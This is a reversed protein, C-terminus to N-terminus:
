LYNEIVKIKNELCTIFGSILIQEDVEPITVKLQQLKKFYMYTRSGGQKQIIAYKKFESGSNLKIRLFKDDMDKTTTFVPYLTSVIGNDVIDNINFRFILDDSMHRYTFYGFPVVGYHGDNIVAREQPYLGTRSSTLVPIETNVPVLEKYVELYKGIKEIKWESFAKGDEDKISELSISNLFIKHRQSNFSVNAGEINVHANM